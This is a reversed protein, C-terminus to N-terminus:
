CSIGGSRKSSKSSHIINIIPIAFAATKGTGTQAIALVDEGRLVAPITKYQIDTTRFYKMDLLNRLLDESLQLKDFKM